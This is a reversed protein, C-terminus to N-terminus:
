NVVTIVSTPTGFDDDGAPPRGPDALYKQDDAVFSYRYRGPRLPLTIDWTGGHRRMPTARPDWNNFDGVVAVRRLGSAELTFRVPQSTSGIAEPSGILRRSGLWTAVVGGTVLLMIAAARALFQLRSGVEHTKLDQNLAGIVRDEVSLSPVPGHKLEAVVAAVVPDDIRDESEPM